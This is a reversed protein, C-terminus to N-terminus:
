RNQANKFNVYYEEPHFTAGTYGILKLFTAVLKSDGKEHLGTNQKYYAYDSGILTPGTLGIVKWVNGMTTFIMFPNKGIRLLDDTGKITFQEMESKARLLAVLTLNHIYSNKKLEKKKDDGGALMLLGIMTFLIGYELITKYFSVKEKDSMRDWHKLGLNQYNKFMKVLNHFTERQYGMQVEQEQTNWREGGFRNVAMAVFFRRLFLAGKGAWNTEISSIETQRYAGQLKRAMSQFKGRFVDEQQDTFEVGDKKQFKGDKVEYIQELNSLKIDKGNVKVITADAITLFQVFLVEFESMPKPSTLFEMKNKLVTFESKATIERTPNEALFSFHDLVQGIFSKNGLKTWDHLLNPTYKVAKAQANKLNKLNYLNSKVGSNVIAQLRTSLSNNISSIINGIFISKAAYGLVTSSVKALDVKGIPGLNVIMPKIRQGYVFVDLIDDVGKSLVTKEIEKKQTREVQNKAPSFIKRVRDTFGLKEVYNKKELTDVEAALLKSAEFIPLNDNLAKYLSAHYEFLLIAALADKTQASTDIKGVFRTPITQTNSQSGGILFSTDTDTVGTNSRFMESFTGDFSLAKFAKNTVNVANEGSTKIIAPLVHGMKLNDPYIKQTDLYKNTLYSLFKAKAPDAMSEAYRKNVFKGQKARPINKYLIDYDKSVHEDKVTYTYYEKAPKIEIFNPNNPTQHEWIYIARESPTFGGTKSNYQYQTFHNDRWWDTTKLKERAIYDIVLNVIEQYGTESAINEDGLFVKTVKKGLKQEEYWKGDEKTYTIDNLVVKVRNELFSLGTQITDEDSKLVEVQQNVMDIYYGTNVTTSISILEKFLSNLENILSINDAKFKKLTARKESLEQFRRQEDVTKDVNKRLENYENSESPSLSTLKISNFKLDEVYQQLEKIKGVLLPNQKSLVIGDIVQEEDRYPRVLDRIEKYIDKKQTKVNNNDIYKSMESDEAAKALVNTLNNIDETINALAEFYEPSIAVQQIDSVLNRYDDPHYQNKKFELADLDFKYKTEGDETLVDDGFEYRLKSYKTLLEAIKLGNEDKKSGDDNYESKLKKLNIKAIKIAEIIDARTASDSRSAADQLRDIDDYQDQTIQRLTRDGVKEDLIARFAYYEDSYQRQSNEKKFTDFKEFAEKYKNTNESEKINAQIDKFHLKFWYDKIMELEMYQTIYSNDISQVLANQNVHNFQINGDKDLDLEDDTDKKFKISTPITVLDDGIGEFRKAMDRMGRGTAKSFADSQTQAENKSNLMNIGARDYIVNVMNQLTNILPHGNAIKSEFINSFQNADRFQSDFVKQLNEKTPAKELIAKKEKALIAVKDQLKDKAPQSPTAAIERELDRIKRDINELPISYLHENSEVLKELLPAKILKRISFDINDKASIATTLLYNFREVNPNVTRRLNARLENNLEVMLEKFADLSKSTKQISMYYALKLNDDMDSRDITNLEEELTNFLQATTLIGKVQSKLLDQKDEGALEEMQKIVSQLEQKENKNITSVLRKKIDKLADPLKVLIEEVRAEVRKDTLLTTVVKNFDEPKDSLNYFSGEPFIVDVKVDTANLIQAIQELSTLPHLDTVDLNIFKGTGFKALVQNLHFAMWKVFDKIVEFFTRPEENEYVNNFVRSLAQTILEQDRIFQPQDKYLVQVKQHLKPYSKQAEKLLNDFLPKNLEKVTFIFPHLLEEAVIDSTLNNTFFYIKGGSYVSQANEKFKDPFKDAFESKTIYVIKDKPINLKNVFFDIIAEYKDKHIRESNEEISDILNFNPNPILYPINSSTSRELFMDRNLNNMSMYQHYLRQSNDLGKSQNFYWRDEDIIDHPNFKTVFGNKSLNTLAVMPISSFKQESKLLSLNYYINDYVLDPIGVFIYRDGQFEAQGTSVFRDWLAISAASMRSPVIDSRLQLGNDAAFQAMKLHAKTGINEGTREVAVAEITLYSGDNIASLGGVSVNNELIEVNFLESDKTKVDLSVNNNKTLFSGNNFISKIQNTITNVFIPTDEDQFHLQPEGNRDVAESTFRTDGMVQNPYLELAIEIMRKGFARETEEPNGMNFQESISQLVTRPNNDFNAMYINNNRPLALAEQILEKDNINARIEWDGFWAKFSKTYTQAWLKLAEEDDEIQPLSRISSFLLSQEGNPALVRDLKGDKYIISCQDSM